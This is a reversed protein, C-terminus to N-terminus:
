LLPGHDVWNESYMEISIILIKLVFNDQISFNPTALIM